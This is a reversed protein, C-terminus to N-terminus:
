SGNAISEICKWTLRNSDKMWGQCIVFKLQEPLADYDARENLVVFQKLKLKSNSHKLILRGVVHQRILQHVLVNGGNSSFGCEAKAEGLYLSNSSQIVIDIETNLLNNILKTKQDSNETDIDYNWDKPLRLDYCSSKIKRKLDGFVREYLEVLEKEFANKKCSAHKKNGKGLEFRRDRVGKWFLEIKLDEKESTDCPNLRKVLKSLLENDQFFPAFSQATEWNETRNPIELIGLTREM